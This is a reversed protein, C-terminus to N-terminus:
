YYMNYWIIAQRWIPTLGDSSIFNKIHFPPKAGLRLIIHYCIQCHRLRLDPVWQTLVTGLLHWARAQTRTINLSSWTYVILMYLLCTNTIRLVCLLALVYMNNMVYNDRQHPMGIYYPGLLQCVCQYWTTFNPSSPPNVSFQLPTHQKTWSVFSLSYNRPGPWHTPPSAVGPPPSAVRTQLATNSQSTTLAGRDTIPCNQRFSVDTTWIPWLHGFSDSGM